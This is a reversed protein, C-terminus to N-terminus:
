SPNQGAYMVAAFMKLDYEHESDVSGMADYDDLLNGILSSKATGARKEFTLIRISRELTYSVQGKQM